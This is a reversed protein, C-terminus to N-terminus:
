ENAFAILFALIAALGGLLCAGSWVAWNFFHFVSAGVAAAGLTAWVALFHYNMAYGVGTPTGTLIAWSRRNKKSIHLSM